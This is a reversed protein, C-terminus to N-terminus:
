SEYLDWLNDYLVKEFENGLPEQKVLLQSYFNSVLMVIQDNGQYDGKLFIASSTSSSLASSHYSNPEYFLVDKMKDEMPNNSFFLLGAITVAGITRSMQHNTYIDNNM